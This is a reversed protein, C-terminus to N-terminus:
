CGDASKTDLHIDTNSGEGPVNQLGVPAVPLDAAPTVYVQLVVGM